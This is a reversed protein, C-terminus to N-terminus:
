TRGSPVLRSASSSSREGDFTWQRGFAGRRQGSDHGAATEEAVLHSDPITGSGGQSAVVDNVDQGGEGPPALGLVPGGVLSPGPM